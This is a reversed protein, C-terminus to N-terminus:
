WNKYHTVAQVAKSVYKWYERCVIEGDKMGGATRDVM